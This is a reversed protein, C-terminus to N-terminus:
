DTAADLLRDPHRRLYQEVPLSTRRRYGHTLWLDGRQSLYVIQWRYLGALAGPDRQLIRAYARVGRVYGDHHNYAYLAEDLRGPEGGGHAALYRGAALIADRPDDIDGKGYQAWTAPLFQMPGRAGASSFGRIKGFGTEVLNVAALVERPVGFTREAEAYHRRLEDLPPPAVIRWAPVTTAPRSLLRRLQTRAEVHDAVTRRHPGAAALVAPQWSRRRTLQRYLVQTDFAAQQLAQESSAPDRVVDEAAVLRRALDDADRALPPRTLAPAAPDVATPAEPAPSTGPPASGSASGPASGPASGSAPPDPDPDGPAGCGAMTAALALAAAARRLTV